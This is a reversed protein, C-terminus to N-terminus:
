RSQEMVYKHENEESNWYETKLVDVKIQTEVNDKKITAIESTTSLIEEWLSGDPCLYNRYTSLQDGKYYNQIDMVYGNGHELLYSAKEKIYDDMSRLIM